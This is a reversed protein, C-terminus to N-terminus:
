AKAVLSDFLARVDDPLPRGKFSTEDVCAIEYNGEAVV